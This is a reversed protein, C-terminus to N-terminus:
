ATTLVCCILQPHCSGLLRSLPCGARCCTTRNSFMPIDEDASSVTSFLLAAVEAHVALSLVYLIKAGLM